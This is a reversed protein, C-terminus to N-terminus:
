EEGPGTWDSGSDTAPTTGASQGGDTAPTPDASQGANGSPSSNHDQAQINGTYVADAIVTYGVGLVGAYVISAGIIWIIAGFLLIAFNPQRFSNTAAAIEASSIGFGFSAVVGGILGILLFYALLKFGYKIGDIASITTAM